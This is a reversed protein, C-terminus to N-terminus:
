LPAVGHYGIIVPGAVLTAVLPSLLGNESIKDGGLVISDINIPTRGHRCSIAVSQRQRKEVAGTM